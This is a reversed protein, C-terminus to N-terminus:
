AARTVVPAAAAVRAGPAPILAGLRRATFLGFAAMVAIVVGLVIWGPVGLVTTWLADAGAPLVVLTASTVANFAGHGVAAVWVNRCIARVWHLLVGGLLCSAVMCALGLLGPRAYNYGLLIVPAHWVGWLAGAILSMRWFGLPQLASQLFGRWGLEEGFAPVASILVSIPLTLMTVLVVVSADTGDPLTAQLGSFSWDLQVWGVAQALLMASAALVLWAAPALLIVAISRWVPKFPTLGLFRARHTPKLVFFTVILAAIAPTAMMLTTMPLFLPSTLGGTLWTPIQVLWALGCALVAFLAVARWPVRSLDLSAAAAPASASPAPSTTM